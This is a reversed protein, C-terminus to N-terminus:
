HSRGLISETENFANMLKTVQHTPCISDYRGM